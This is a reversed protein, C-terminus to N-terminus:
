WKSVDGDLLIASDGAKPSIAAKLKSPKVAGHIRVKGTTVLGLRMTTTPNSGEFIIHAQPIGTTASEPIPDHSTGMDLFGTCLITDVRMKTKTSRSWKLTGQILVDKLAADSNADYEVTIGAPIVVVDNLGPVSGGWTTPSSWQGSEVAQKTAASIMSSTMDNITEQEESVVTSWFYTPDTSSSPLTAPRNGTFTTIPPIRAVALLAFSSVAFTNIRAM